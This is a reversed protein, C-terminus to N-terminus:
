ATWSRIATLFRLRSPLRFVVNLVSQPPEQGGPGRVGDGLLRQGLGGPWCISMVRRVRVIYVYAGDRRM